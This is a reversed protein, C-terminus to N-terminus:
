TVELISQMLCKQIVKGKISAWGRTCNFIVPEEIPSSQGKFKQLNQLNENHNSTYLNGLRASSGIKHDQGFFQQSM